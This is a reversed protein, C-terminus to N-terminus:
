KEKTYVFCETLIDSMRKEADTMPDNNRTRIEMYVTNMFQSTEINGVEGINCLNAKSRYFNFKDFEEKTFEFQYIKESVRSKM